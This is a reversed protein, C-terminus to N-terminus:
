RLKRAYRRVQRRAKQYAEASLTGTIAAPDAVIGQSVNGFPVLGTGAPMMGTVKNFITLAYVSTEGPDISTQKCSKRNLKKTVLKRGIQLETDGSYFRTTVKKIKLNVAAAGAPPFYNLGHCFTLLNVAPDVTFRSTLAYGNPFTDANDELELTAHYGVWTQYWVAGATAPCLLLLVLVTILLQITSKM